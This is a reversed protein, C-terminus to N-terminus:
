CSGTLATEGRRVALSFGDNPAPTGGSDRVHHIRTSVLTGNDVWSAMQPPMDIHLDRSNTPRHSERRRSDLTGPSRSRQLLLDRPPYSSPPFFYLSSPSISFLHRPRRAVLAQLHGRVLRRSPHPSTSFPTEPRENPLAFLGSPRDTPGSSFVRRPWHSKEPQGINM